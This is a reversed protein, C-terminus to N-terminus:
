DNCLVVEQTQGPILRRPSPGALRAECVTLLVDSGIVGPLLDALNLGSTGPSGLVYLQMPSTYGILSVFGLVILCHAITSMARDSM